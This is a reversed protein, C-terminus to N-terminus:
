HQREPWPCWGEMDEHGARDMQQLCGTGPPRQSTRTLTAIQEKGHSWTRKALEYWWNVGWDCFISVM